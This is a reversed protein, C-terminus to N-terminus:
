LVIVYYKCVCVCMCGIDIKDCFPLESCTEEIIGNVASYAMECSRVELYKLSIM